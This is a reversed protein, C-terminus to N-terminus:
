ASVYDHSLEFDHDKYVLIHPILYIPVMWMMWLYWQIINNYENVNFLM